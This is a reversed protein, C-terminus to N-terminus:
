KRRVARTEGGVTQLVLQTIAGEADKSFDLQGLMPSSFATESLPILPLVLGAMNLTLEGRELTIGFLQPGSQYSGAYKALVEPSLQVARKQEDSAKGIMHSRDKENENCVYELLETDPMLFMDIKLTIPKTYAKPDQLTYELEMRGFDLRRYRETTRLAETHPHGAGDLWTRDNYGNSEVVLADGDWRAVSYGMWSANPEKELARGDLFIQRYTLDQHLMVILTPTQIIKASDFTAYNPGAPLCLVSPHDKALDETRQKVLAEAWPATEGPKLDVAVNLAYKPNRRWLGSLDPHGDPTRPAPASLNPRGNADRPIGATPQRLWQAGGPVCTGCALFVLLTTRM